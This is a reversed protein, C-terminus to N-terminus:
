QAGLDIRGEQEFPISMGPLDITGSVTFDIVGSAFVQELEPYTDETLEVKAQFVQRTGPQVMQGVAEASEMEKGGVKITYRLSEVPLAFPNDNTLHLFFDIDVSEREYQAAQADQVLLRPLTPGVVDTKRQFGSTSGDEFRVEGTLEVPFGGDERLGDLRSLDGPLPIEVDFGLEAQQESALDASVDVSGEVTGALDGTALAYRVEKVGVASTRPNYIEIGVALQSQSLSKAEPFVRSVKAEVAAPPGAPKGGGCGLAAASLLTLSTLNRFM